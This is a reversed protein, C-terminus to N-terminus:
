THSLIETYIIITVIGDQVVRAEADAKEPGKVIHTISNAYITICLIIRVQGSRVTGPEDVGQKIHRQMMSMCREGRRRGYVCGKEGHNRYV